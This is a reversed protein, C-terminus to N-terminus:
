IEEVVFPQTTSVVEIVVDIIGSDVELHKLSDVLHGAVRSFVEETIRLGLHAQRLSKKGGYTKAGFIHNLFAKQKGRLVDMNTNRFFPLLVEDLIIRKYFEDVTADVASEEGLLEYLSFETGSSEGSSESSFHLNDTSTSTSQNVLPNSFM